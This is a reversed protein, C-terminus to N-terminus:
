WSKSQSKPPIITMNILTLTPMTLPVQPTLKMLISTMKLLLKVKRSPHSNKNPPNKNKPNPHIRLSPSPHLIM